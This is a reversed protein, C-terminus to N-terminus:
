QSQSSAASYSPPASNPVSAPSSASTIAQQIEPWLKSLMSPSNTKIWDAMKAEDNMNWSLPEIANQYIGGAVQAKQILMLYCLTEATENILDEEARKLEWEQRTMTNNMEELMPAPYQPIPLGLKESTPDGGLSSILQQLRNQHVKSEQLHKEMRQKAEPILTENIRSQLREIGANEMALAGNFELIFKQNMVQAVNLKSM